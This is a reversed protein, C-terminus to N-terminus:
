KMFKKYLQLTQEANNRWSFKKLQSELKNKRVQYDDGKKLAELINKKMDDQNYPDFYFAADGCVEPISSLNSVVSVTGSAAAEMPPFGFGEYITPFIFLEANQYLWLLTEHSVFNLYFVDPDANVLKLTEKYSHDKKGVIVLKLNRYEPYKKIRQFTEILRNYNKRPELHGVSLLFKNKKLNQPIDDPVKSVPVSFREPNIAELIVTIKNPSINYAYQIEKKTFESISIIHDARKISKKVKYKLFHYRLFAYTKPFRFFRMDHVTLIVPTQKLKPSHFMPSHFLDWKELEEEKKWFYQEFVSRRVVEKLSGSTYPVPKIRFRSPLLNTAYEEM